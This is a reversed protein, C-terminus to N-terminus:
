YRRLVGKGHPHIQDQRAPIERYIEMYIVMVEYSCRDLGSERGSLNKRAETSGSAQFRGSGSLVRGRKGLFAIELTEGFKLSVGTNSKHSPKKEARFGLQCEWSVM